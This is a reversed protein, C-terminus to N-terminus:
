VFTCIIIIMIVYMRFYHNWLRKRFIMLHSLFRLLSKNLVLTFQCQGSFKMGWEPGVKELANYINYLRPESYFFIKELYKMFKLFTSMKNNENKSHKVDVLEHLIVSNVCCWMTTEHCLISHYERRFSCCQYWPISYELVSLLWLWMTIIM